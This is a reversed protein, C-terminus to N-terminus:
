VVGAMSVMGGNVVGSLMGQKATNCAPCQSRVPDTPAKCLMVAPQEASCVHVLGGSCMACEVVQCVQKMTTGIWQVAM